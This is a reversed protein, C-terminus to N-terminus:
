VAVEREWHRHQSIAKVFSPAISVVDGGRTTIIGAQASSLKASESEETSQRIIHGTLFSLDAKIQEGDAGTLMGLRPAVTMVAAGATLLAKKMESVSADDLGDALMFAIKRTKINDNLFKPNGIVHTKTQDLYKNWEKKLDENIVCRLATSYIQVGSELAQYLLDIPVTEQLKDNPM